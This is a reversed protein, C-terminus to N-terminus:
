SECKRVPIPFLLCAPTGTRSPGTCGRGVQGAPGQTPFPACGWGRHDDLLTRLHYCLIPNRPFTVKRLNRTRASLVSFLHNLKQHNRLKACDHSTPSIACPGSLVLICLYGWGRYNDSFTRLRYFIFPNPLLTINLVRAFRASSNSFLPSLAREHQSRQASNFASATTSM